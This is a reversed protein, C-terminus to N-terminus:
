YRDNMKDMIISIIDKTIEEPHRNVDISFYKKGDGLSRYNKVQRELEEFPVEEKRAAIIKPDTTLVFYIDPEPIFLKVFRAVGLNGGYRYRKNDVLLDDYYRDFITLSSQLQLKLINKIWGFNYQYIFYFLKIYSKPQNYPPKEHPDEVAISKRKNYFPKLHFYDKRRFPLNKEMLKEIVTSKGSGDPGLFAISVGTPNLIRQLIRKTNNISTSLTLKKNLLFEMIISKDKELLPTVTDNIFANKITNVHNRFFKEILKNCKYPEIMYLNKLFLFNEQNLDKKFLKKILYTFFDKETSLIPYKKYYRISNFLEKEEYLLINEQSLEGYLDLNLFKNEIPSYLFFNKAYIHHHMEQVLLFNEQQCFDNLITKIDQFVKKTFLIDNDNTRDIDKVLDVYGNIIIYPINKKKLYHLFKFIM